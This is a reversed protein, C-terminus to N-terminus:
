ASERHVAILEYRPNYMVLEPRGPECRAVMGAVVIRRGPEIGPMDRRGTWCLDLSGTGDFLRARLATTSGVPAYTVAHLVGAVRARRRPVLSAVDDAGYGAVWTRQESAELEAHTALLGPRTGPRAVPTTRGHAM